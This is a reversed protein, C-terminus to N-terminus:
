YKDIENELYAITEKVDMIVQMDDASLDLPNKKGIEVKLRKIVEEYLAPVIKKLELEKKENEGIFQYWGRDPSIYGEEKILDRLTGSYNGASFDAGGTEREVFAIIEQRSHRQNDSLLNKAFHRITEAPTSYPDLFM